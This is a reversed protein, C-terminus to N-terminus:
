DPEPQQDDERLMRYHPSLIEVGAANFADQIGQHLVSYTAPIKRPQDTYGNLEYEVYFDQLATQLVFPAPEAMVDETAGAAELLLEHVQRWPVDYGITVSTHLILEKKRAKSTFNIIQGALINTNPITVRENKTTRLRTTLLNRDVVDGVTEGIRVRDGLAFPRMYILIIGSVINAMASGSGLSVLVGVFLTMGKFAGSNSGPIYPIAVVIAFAFVVLRVINFTPRAWDAYFGAFKIREREIETFFFQIGRLIVVTMFGIFVLFFLSPLQDVMAKGFVMLPGAAMDFVQTAVGATWPFLSLLFNLVALVMWIVTVAHVLRIVARAAGVLVEGELVKFLVRGGVRSELLNEFRRRLIAMLKLLVLFVVITVGAIIAGRILSKASYDYRFDIIAQRIIEMRQAALEDTSVDLGEAEYDWVAGLFGRGAMILTAKIREDRVLRLNDLGSRRSKALNRIAEEMAAAREQASIVSQPGVAFLDQGLVVVMAMTDTAAEAAEEMDVPPEQQDAEVPPEDQGMALGAVLCTALVLALRSIWRFVM